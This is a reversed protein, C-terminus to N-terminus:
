LGAASIRRWAAGRRYRVPDQGPIKSSNGPSMRPQRGLEGIRAGIEVTMNPHHDLMRRCTKWTKPIPRRATGRIADQSAAGNGSNARKWSRRTAPFIREMSLGTPIRTCNRTANTSVISPRFFAEPDSAHICGADQAGRRGGVHSRLASRGSEGTQRCARRRAPLPGADQAGQDRAGAAHAKQIEDAQFESLEAGQLPEVLARHFTYFRGPFAKDYRAIADELGKGYGGTLNVMAAINKRDMVAIEDRPNGTYSREEAMQVGNVAKKSFSLHTHIDIVPYRARAVHTEKVVLMSKPEYESIDLPKRTAQPAAAAGSPMNVAAFGLGASSTLFKRRRMGSM